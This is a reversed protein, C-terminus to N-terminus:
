VFHFPELIKKNQKRLSDSTWNKNQLDTGLMYKNGYCANFLSIQEIKFITITINIGNILSWRVINARNSAKKFIFQECQAFLIFRECQESLIFQECHENNSSNTTRGKRVIHITRPCVMQIKKFCLSLIGGYQAYLPRNKELLTINWLKTREDDSVWRM